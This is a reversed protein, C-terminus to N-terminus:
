GSVDIVGAEGEETGFVLRLGAADWAMTSVAGKGPRRLLAEDPSGINAIMIMGDLYGIAVVDEVPHFAVFTVMSDGRTALEQPAKGM